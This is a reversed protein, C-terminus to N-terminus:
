FKDYEKILEGIQQRYKFILKDAAADRMWHQVYMFVMMLKILFYLKYTCKIRFEIKETMQVVVYTCTCYM